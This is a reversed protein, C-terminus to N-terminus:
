MNSMKPDGYVHTLAMFKWSKRGNVDCRCDIRVCGRRTIQIQIQAFGSSLVHLAKGSIM